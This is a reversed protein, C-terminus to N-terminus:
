KRRGTMRRGILGILVGSAVLVIPASLLALAFRTVDEMRPWAVGRQHASWSFFIFIHPGPAGALRAQCRCARNHLIRCRSSLEGLENGFATHATPRRQAAAGGASPRKYISSLFIRV